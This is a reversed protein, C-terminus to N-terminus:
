YGKLTGNMEAKCYEKQFLADEIQEPHADPDNSIADLGECANRFASELNAKHVDM